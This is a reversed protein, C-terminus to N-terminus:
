TYPSLKQSGASFTQRATTDTYSHLISHKLGNNTAMQWSMISMHALAISRICATAESAVQNEKLSLLTVGAICNQTTEHQNRCKALGMRAPFILCALVLILAEQKLITERAYL